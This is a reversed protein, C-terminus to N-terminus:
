AASVSRQVDDAQVNTPVLRVFRVHHMHVTSLSLSLGILSTLTAAVEWEKHLRHVANDAIVDAVVQRSWLNLGDANPELCLFSIAGEDRPFRVPSFATIPVPKHYYM